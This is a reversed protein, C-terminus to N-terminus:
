KDIRTCIYEYSGFYDFMNVNNEYYIGKALSEFVGHSFLHPWTHNIDNSKMGAGEGRYLYTYFTCNFM